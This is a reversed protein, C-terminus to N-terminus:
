QYRQFSLIEIICGILGQTNMYAWGEEPNEMKNSQLVEIGMGRWKELESEFPLPTPVGIHHLGEGHMELFEQYITRGELTEVLELSIPGMKAHGFKLVYSVPQGRVSARSSPSRVVNIRFPGIGFKDSLVNATKEVDRVVICIHLIEKLMIRDEPINKRHVTSM